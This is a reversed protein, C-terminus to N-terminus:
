QPGNKRMNQKLLVTAHVCLTRAGDECRSPVQGAIGELAPFSTPQHRAM